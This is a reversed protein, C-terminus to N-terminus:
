WTISSNSFLVNANSFCSNWLSAMMFNRSFSLMLDLDSSWHFRSWHFLFSSHAESTRLMFTDTKCSRAIDCVAFLFVDACGWYFFFTVTVPSEISFPIESFPSLLAWLTFTVLKGPSVLSLITSFNSSSMLSLGSSKTMWIPVLLRVYLTFNNFLLFFIKFIDDIHWWFIKRKRQNNNSFFYSIYLM